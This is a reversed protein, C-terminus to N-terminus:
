QRELIKDLESSLHAYRLKKYAAIAQFTGASEKSATNPQTLQKM